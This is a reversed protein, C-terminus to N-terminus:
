KDAKPKGFSYGKTKQGFSSGADYAGPGVEGTANNPLRATKTGTTILM